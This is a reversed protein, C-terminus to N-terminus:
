NHMSLYGKGDDECSITMGELIYKEYINSLSSPCVTISVGAGSRLAGYTSLIAAGTMGISGAIILVKGRDQKYTNSPVKILIEEVERSKFLNCEIGGTDDLAVKPLGIDAVKVEGACDKGDALYLGIKSYGFTITSNALVAIPSALGNNANLGSPIDVSIIYMDSQNIWNIWPILNEKLNDRFGIGIIGDILLDFGDYHIFKFGYSVSGSLYVYEDHYRSSPGRIDNKEIIFHVHVDYKKRFFIIASCIADGGNNGKGCLILIRPKNNVLLSYKEVGSVISNAASAMLVSQGVSYNEISIKDLEVSQNKTLIRM